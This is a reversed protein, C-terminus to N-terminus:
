YRQIISLGENNKNTQVVGHRLNYEQKIKTMTLM